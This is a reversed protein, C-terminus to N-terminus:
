FYLVMYIYLCLYHSHFCIDIFCYFLLICEQHYFTTMLMMLWFVHWGLKAVPSCCCCAGQCHGPWNRWQLQWLIEQSRSWFIWVCTDTEEWQASCWVAQVVVLLTSVGVWGGVRLPLSFSYQVIERWRHQNPEPVTFPSSFMQELIVEDHTLNMLKMNCSEQQCDSQSFGDKFQSTLNYLSCALFHITKSHQYSISPHNTATSLICYTM